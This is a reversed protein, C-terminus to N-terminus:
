KLINKQKPLELKLSYPEFIVIGDVKYHNNCYVVCVM